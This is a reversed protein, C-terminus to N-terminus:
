STAAYTKPKKIVVLGSDVVTRHARIVTEEYQVIYYDGDMRVFTVQTGRPLQIWGYNTDNRIAWIRVEPKQAHEPGVTVTPVVLQEYVTAPASPLEPQKEFLTEVNVARAVRVVANKAVKPASPITYAVLAIALLPLVFLSLIRAM